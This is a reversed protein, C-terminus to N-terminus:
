ADAGYVRGPKTTYAKFHGVWCWRPKRRAGIRGTDLQLHMGALLLFRSQECLPTQLRNLQSGPSARGPAPPGPMLAGDPLQRIHSAHLDEAKRFALELVRLGTLRSLSQFARM